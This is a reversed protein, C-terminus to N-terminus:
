TANGLEARQNQKRYGNDLTDGNAPLIEVERCRGPPRHIRMLGAIQMLELIRSASGPAVDFRGTLKNNFRVRASGELGSQYALAPAVMLPFRGPLKLVGDLWALPIPGRIFEM